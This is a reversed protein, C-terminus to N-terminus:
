RSVEEVALFPFVKKRLRQRQHEASFDCVGLARGPGCDGNSGIKEGGRYRGYGKHGVIGDYGPVGMGGNQHESTM